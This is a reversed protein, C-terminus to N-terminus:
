VEKLILNKKRTVASNTNSFQNAEVISLRNSIWYFILKQGLFSNTNKQFRCYKNRECVPQYSFNLCKIENLQCPFLKKFGKERLSKRVKISFLPMEQFKKWQKNSKYIYPKAQLLSRSDFVRLFQPIFINSIEGVTLICLWNWPKWSGIWICWSKADNFSITKQSKKICFFNHFISNELLPKPLCFTREKFDKLWLFVTFKSAYFQFKWTVIKRSEISFYTPNSKSLDFM